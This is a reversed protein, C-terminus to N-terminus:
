LGSVAPEDVRARRSSSEACPVPRVKHPLGAAYLASSRFPSRRTRDVLDGLFGEPDDARHTAIQRSLFCDEPALNGESDVFSLVRGPEQHGLLSATLGGMSHGVLHFREIGANSLVARAAEVVFGISIKSLDDCRTEGCGRADYALFPRGAFAPHHAVDLHDEQTSGLRAPLRDARARWQSATVGVSGVRVPLWRMPWRRSM